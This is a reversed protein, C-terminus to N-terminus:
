NEEWKCHYPSEVDTPIHKCRLNNKQCPFIVIRKVPPLDDNTTPFNDKDRNRQNPFKFTPRQNFTWSSWSGLARRESNRFSQFEEGIERSREKGEGKRQRDSVDFESAGFVEVDFDETSSRRKSDSVDFDEVSSGM